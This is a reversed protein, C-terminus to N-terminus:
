DRDGDESGANDLFRVTVRHGRPHVRIEDPGAVSVSVVPDGCRPCDVIEDTM